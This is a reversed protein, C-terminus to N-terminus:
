TLLSFEVRYAPPWWGGGFIQAMQTMQPYFGGRGIQMSEKERKLKKEEEHKKM